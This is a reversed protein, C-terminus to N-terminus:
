RDRRVAFRALDRLPEAAAGFRGLASRAEEALDGALARAGDVRLLAPFTIKARAADHGVPKGLVARDGVVDLVDDAIQFALGLARAYDGLADIDREPAGSALAGARASGVFLAGTKLHHIGELAARDLPRGEAALDLMQGGAMGAPGIARALEAVIRAAGASESLESALIEFAVSQLADGALIATAEDFARHCAPRGRRLDDDDMCPLDDHILSYTHLLEAALAVPLADHATGGVAEAAGFALLPRLRKGGSLASYRMAERLRPPADPLRLRAELELEVLERLPESWRRLRENMRGDDAFAAATFLGTANVGGFAGGVMRNRDGM